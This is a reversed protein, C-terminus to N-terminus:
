FDSFDAHKSGINHIEISQNLKTFSEKTWSLAFSNGWLFSVVQWSFYSTLNLSHFRYDNLQFGQGFPGFCIAPNLLV